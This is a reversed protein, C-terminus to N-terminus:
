RGWRTPKRTVKGAQTFDEARREPQRFRAGAACWCPRGFEHELHPKRRGCTAREGGDCTSMELGYDGCKECTYHWERSFPWCLRLTKELSATRQALTAGEAKMADWFGIAVRITEALVSEAKPNKKM